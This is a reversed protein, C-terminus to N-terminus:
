ERVFKGEHQMEIRAYSPYRYAVIEPAPTFRPRSIVVEHLGCALRPTLSLQKEIFHGTAGLRYIIEVEFADCSFQARITDAGADCDLLRSDVIDWRRSDASISSVDAEIGYREGTLKNSLSVIASTEPDFELKLSTSELALVTQQQM